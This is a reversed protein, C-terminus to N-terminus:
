KKNKYASCSVLILDEVTVSDEELKIDIHGPHSICWLVKLVANDLDYMAKSLTGEPNKGWEERRRNTMTIGSFM